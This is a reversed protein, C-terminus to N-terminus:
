KVIQKMKVNEMYLGGVSDATICQVSNMTIDKFHINEMVGDPVGDIAIGIDTRDCFINEVAGFDSISFNREPFTPEKPLEFPKFFKYNM